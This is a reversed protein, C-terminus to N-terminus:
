VLLVVFVHSIHQAVYSMVIAVFDSPLPFKEAGNYYWIHEMGAGFMVIHQMVTNLIGEESVAM